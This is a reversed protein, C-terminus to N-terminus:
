PLMENHGGHLIRKARSYLNYFDKVIRRHHPETEHHLGTSISRDLIFRCRDDCHHGNVVDLAYKKIIGMDVGFVTVSRKSCPLTPAVGRGNGGFSWSCEGLRVDGGGYCQFRDTDCNECASYDVPSISKILGRSWIQGFQGFAWVEEVAPEAKKGEKARQRESGCVNHDEMVARTCPAVPPTYICGGPGIESAETALTCAWGHAPGLADSIYYLEDPDLDRLMAEVNDILFITDDDGNLIWEFDSVTENVVRMISTYREENPNNWGFDGDPGEVWIESPDPSPIRHEVGTSNTSVVTLVGRRWTERGTAIIHHNPSYTQIGIVLKQASALFPLIIIICILSIM